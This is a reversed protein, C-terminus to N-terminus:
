KGSSRSLPPESLKSKGPLDRKDYSIYNTTDGTAYPDIYVAESTSLIQAHFGARSFDCRLTATPDDIGQGSYSKFDTVKGSPDPASIPSEQIRFRAWRGNPMPIALVVASKRAAKTFEMPARALLQRLAEKNLHVTRYAKPIIRRPGSGAISGPKVDQWIATEASSSLSITLIFLVAFIKSM